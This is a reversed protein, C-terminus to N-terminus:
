LVEKKLDTDVQSWYKLCRETNQNTKKGVVVVNWFMRIWKLSFKEFWFPNKIVADSKTHINVCIRNKVTVRTSKCSLSFLCALVVSLVVCWGSISVSPTVVSFLSPLSFYFLPSTPYSLHIGHTSMLFRQPEWKQWWNFRSGWSKSNLPPLHENMMQSFLSQSNGLQAIKGWASAKTKQIDPETSTLGWSLWPSPMGPLGCVEYGKNVSCNQFEFLNIPCMEVSLSVCQSSM